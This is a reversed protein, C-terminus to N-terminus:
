QTAENVMTGRREALLLMALREVLHLAALADSTSSFGGDIQKRASRKIEELAMNVDM